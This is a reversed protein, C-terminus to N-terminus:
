IKEFFSKIQQNAIKIIDKRDYFSKYWDATFNITKNIDLIPRWGLLKKAKSSDIKLFGTEHKSSDKKVVYLGKKFKKLTKEVMKKVTICNKKPPGFNWAGSMEKRGAYLNEALLIYGYLPELVHQWPRIADPNRLIVDKKEEFIAQIIDPFIRDASWDGGGIVNGARASAILTTRNIGYDDPNFYSKIYSNIAIEAGVKSSGYPDYGMLKDTERYFYNKKNKDEYVKDTTIMVASKVSKTEKIAQLINVTGMVNTEFTYVPFDYSRLVLPQAALHFIIEPKEKQFIKKVKELNRIDCFYNNIKKGLKLSNFLNPNTNPKLAVGTINAGWNLLIQTLWGGKFGTHGTILVKKNKFFKRFNEM